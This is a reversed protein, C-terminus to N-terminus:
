KSVGFTKMHCREHEAARNDQFYNLIAPQLGGEGEWSNLRGACVCVCSVRGAPQKNSNCAFYTGLCLLQFGIQHMEFSFSGRSERCLWSVSLCLSISPHPTPRYNITGCVHSYIMPSCKHGCVLANDCIM